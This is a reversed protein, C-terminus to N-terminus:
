YEWRVEAALYGRFVIRVRIDGDQTVIYRYREAQVEIWGEDIIEDNFVLLRQMARSGVEPWVAFASGSDEFEERQTVTM